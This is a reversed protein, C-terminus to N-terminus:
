ILFFKTALNLASMCSGICALYIFYIDVPQFEFEADIQQCSYCALVLISFIGLVTYTAIM